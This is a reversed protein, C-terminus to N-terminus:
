AIRDLHALIAPILGSLEVPAIEHTKRVKIEAKGVKLNKPGLIVRLPIGVLDADNFKVGASETRDDVLIDVGRS